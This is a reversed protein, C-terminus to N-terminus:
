SAGGQEAAAAADDATKEKAVRDAEEKDKAAKERAKKEEAEKEEKAKMEFIEALAALQTTTFKIEGTRYLGDLQENSFGKILDIMPGELEPGILPIGLLKKAVVGVLPTIDRVLGEALEQRQRSERTRLERDHQETILKEYAHLMGLYREGEEARAARASRIEQMLERNAEVHQRGMSEYGTMVRTAVTAVTSLFASMPNDSVTENGNDDITVLRLIQSGGNKGM